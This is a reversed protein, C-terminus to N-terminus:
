PVGHGGAGPALDEPLIFDACYVQMPVMLGIGWHPRRTNYWELFGPLQDTFELIDKCYLLLEDKITRHWREVKGTTTPKRIGALIHHIGNERCFVDFQSEGVRNAFFQSGHDTLVQRPKGFMQIAVQLVQLANETTAHEMVKSALVCRSHDDIITFLHPGGERIDKFDMQWLSNSHHRAFSRWRRRVKPGPVLLGAAVLVEYISQHSIAIQDGLFAKIKGPGMEPHSKRTEVVLDADKWKKTYITRPRTSRDHLSAWTKNEKWVKWWKKVFSLSVGLVAAVQEKDWRERLRRVAYQRVKFWNREPGKYVTRGIASKPERQM